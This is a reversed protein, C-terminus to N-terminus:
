QRVGPPIGPLEVEFPMQRLGGDWSRLGVQGKKQVPFDLSQIAGDLCSAVSANFPEMRLLNVTEISGEAEAKWKAVWEFERLEPEGLVWPKLCAGWVEAQAHFESTWESHANEAEGVWSYFHWYSPPSSPTLKQSTLKKPGVQESSVQRPGAAEQSQPEPKQISSATRCGGLLLSILLAGLLSLEARHM